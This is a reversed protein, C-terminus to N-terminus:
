LSEKYPMAKPVVFGWLTLSAIVDITLWSRDYHPLWSLIPVYRSIHNTKTKSEPHTNATM